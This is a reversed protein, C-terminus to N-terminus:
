MQHHHGAPLLGAGGREVQAGGLHLAPYEAMKAATSETMVVAHDSEQFGPSARLVVPESVPRRAGCWARFDTVPQAGPHAITAEVGKLVPFGRQILRYTAGVRIQAIM